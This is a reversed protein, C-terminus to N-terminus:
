FATSRSASGAGSRLVGSGRTQPASFSASENVRPILITARSGGVNSASQDTSKTQASPRSPAVQRTEGFQRSRDGRVNTSPTRVNEVVDASTPEVREKRGRPAAVGTKTKESGGSWSRVSDYVDGLTEKWKSPSESAGDNQARTTPKVNARAALMEEQLRLEAFGRLEPEPLNKPQKAAVWKEIWANWDRQLDGLSECGYYRKLAAKWDGARMGDKTFEVLRRRGGVMVLYECISFAQSYFPWVDEPYEALAVMDNFAIGKSSRLYEVLRDRYGSRENEAEMTTAMGEDLWRPAHARLYSALVTHMVEHPLVSDIVCQESGQAEIKWDYVEGDKAIFTANGGSQLSPSTKITVVCPNRWNPLEGGLWLIALERRL